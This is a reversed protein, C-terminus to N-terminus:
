THVNQVLEFAHLIDPKDPRHLRDRCRMQGPVLQVICRQEWYLLGVPSSEVLTMGSRMFTKTRKSALSFADGERDIDEPFRDYDTLAM